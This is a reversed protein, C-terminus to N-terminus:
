RAQPVLDRGGGDPLDELCGADVGCWLACGGAPVLEEGGLGLRDGRDVEEMDVGNEQPPEIHQEDDLVVM